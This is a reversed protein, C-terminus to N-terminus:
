AFWAKGILVILPWLLYEGDVMFYSLMRLNSESGTRAKNIYSISYVCFLALLATYTPFVNISIGVAVPLISVVNLVSVLRLTGEKGYIVPISKLANIGDSKIDKIDFFTTNVLLRLSVFLYILTFFIYEPILYQYAPFLAMLGWSFSVYINKFAIIKQTLKKLYVTYLIGTAVAFLVFLLSRISGVILLSVVLGASYVYLYYPFKALTERLYKNRDPNTLDDTNRDKLHDYSYVLQSLFYSILLFPMELPKNLLILPFATISAAGISLLHGGYVLENRIVKIDCYIM